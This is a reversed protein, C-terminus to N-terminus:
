TSTMRNHYSGLLRQSSVKRGGLPYSSFFSFCVVRIVPALIQLALLDSCDMSEGLREFLFRFVSWKGLVSGIVVVLLILLLLTPPGM